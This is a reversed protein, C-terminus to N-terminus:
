DWMFTTINVCSEKHKQTHTKLVLPMVKSHHFSHPEGERLKELGFICCLFYDRLFERIVCCNM